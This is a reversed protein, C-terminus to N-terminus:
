VGLEGKGKFCICENDVIGVFIMVNLICGYVSVLKCIDVVMDEFFLLLEMELDCGFCLGGCWVFGGGFLFEFFDFFDM